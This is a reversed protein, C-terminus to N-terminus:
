ARNPPAFADNQLPGEGSIAPPIEPSQARLTSASLAAAGVLTAQACARLARGM